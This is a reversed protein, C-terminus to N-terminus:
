STNVSCGSGTSAGIPVCTCSLHEATCPYPTLHSTVRGPSSEGIDVAADSEAVVSPNCPMETSGVGM